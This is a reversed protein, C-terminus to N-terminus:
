LTLLFEVLDAVDDATEACWPHPATPLPTPKPAGFELPGFSKRMTQYDWYLSSKDWLVDVFYAQNRLATEQASNGKAIHFSGPHITYYKKYLESDERCRNPDVLDEMSKVHGDHLLGRQAVWYLNHLISTRISQTQHQYLTRSFYSGVQTLPYMNEDSWTGFNNRHCSECNKTFIQQGRAVRDLVKPYSMLGRQMFEGESAADVQDLRGHENLWRYMGLNELTVNDADLTTMYATLSKLATARMAGMAGDPEQAHIYSGEFGAVMESRSLARRVPTHRTIIPIAVPSFLHDNGYVSGDEAPRVLTHEGAGEPVSQLLLTKDTTAKDGSLGKETDNVGYMKGLTAWRMSWHPNPLGPFVRRTTQGPAAEYTIRQAHCSACTMGAWRGKLNSVVDLSDVYVYGVYPSPYSYGSTLAPRVLPKLPMPSPFPDFYNPKLVSAPVEGTRLPIAGFLSEPDAVKGTVPNIAKRHLIADWDLKAMHHVLGLNFDFSWFMREGAQALQAFYPNDVIVPVLNSLRPEGLTSIVDFQHAFESSRIRETLPDWLTFARTPDQLSANFGTRKQVQVALPGESATWPVMFEIRNGSWSRIEKPWTDFQSSKEYFLRKLLNVKGDYMPLDREMVRVKGLLIKAYDIDPGSGFGSGYIVLWSGAVVHVPAQGKIWLPSGNFEIRDIKPFSADLASAQRLAERAADLPPPALLNDAFAFTALGLVWFVIRAHRM